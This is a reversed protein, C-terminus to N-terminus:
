TSKSQSQTMYVRKPLSALCLAEMQSWCPTAKNSPRSATWRWYRRRFPKWGWSIQTIITWLSPGQHCWRRTRRCGVSTRHLRARTSHIWIGRMSSITERMSTTSSNPCTAVTDIPTQNSRTLVSITPPSVSDERKTPQIVCWRIKLSKLLKIKPRIKLQEKITRTGEIGVRKLNM